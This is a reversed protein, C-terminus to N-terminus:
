CVYLVKNLKELLNKKYRGGLPLTIGTSLLIQNSKIQDIRNIDVAYSKHIRIFKNFNENAVVSGLNGHTTIIKNNILKVKTYDKLGELYHVESSDITIYNTGSKLLFVEKKQSKDFLEAKHSTEIFKKIRGVCDRIRDENLPKLLFDFVEMDFANVAYKEQRSLFIVCRARHKVRRLFEIGNGGSMEVDIFLIDTQNNEFYSLGDESSSFTAKNELFLFDKLSISLVLRDVDNSDIIVFNSKM